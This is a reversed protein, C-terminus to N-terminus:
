KYREKQFVIAAYGVIIDEDSTVDGSHYYKLLEAKGNLLKVYEIIIAIAGYGCITADYKQILELFGKTDLNIIRDIFMMDLERVKNGVNSTFLIYNYIAGHHTFDSSAIVICRKNSKVITEYLAKAFLQAEEYDIERVVIPVLRFDKYIYQLFPLQVEISHERIHALPDDTLEKYNEKLTKILEIDVEIDGLPTSWRSFYTTTTIHGGFGSHNTGLIIVTDIKPENEALKKYFWSACAGSYQYGAHPVVGGVVNVENIYRKPLEGPGLERDVFAKEIEKILKDKNIPYFGWIGAQSDRVEYGM